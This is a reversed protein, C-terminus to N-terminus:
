EMARVHGGEEFWEAVAPSWRRLASPDLKHLAFAEAFSEALSTRGYRTPGKKKGRVKGYAKLVPGRRGLGAARRVDGKELVRRAPWAAIAHGVEHVISAASFPRPDSARGVFARSDFTFARDYIVLKYGSTGWIYHGANLPGRRGARGRIIKVDKLVKREKNTLTHLAGALIRLERARWQGAGGKIKGTGYRRAIAAPDEPFKGKFRPRSDRPNGIGVTVDGKGTHWVSVPIKEDGIRILLDLESGRFRPSATYAVAAIGALPISKVSRTGDGRKALKRTKGGSRLSVSRIRGRQLSAVVARRYVDKRKATVKPLKVVANDYFPAAAQAPAPGLLCLALLLGAFGRIM